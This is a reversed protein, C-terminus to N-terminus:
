LEKLENLFVKRYLVVWVTVCLNNEFQSMANIKKRIRKIMLSVETIYKLVYIM